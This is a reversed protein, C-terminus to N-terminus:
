MGTKSSSRCEEGNLSYDFQLGQSVACLKPKRIVFKSNQVYKWVFYAWLALILFGIFYSSVQIDCSHTQKVKVELWKRLWLQVRLVVPFRIHDSGIKGDPQWYTTILRTLSWLWKSRRTSIRGGKDGVNAVCAILSSNSVFIDFSHVEGRYRSRSVTRSKNNRYVEMNLAINGMQM